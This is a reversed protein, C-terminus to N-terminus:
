TGMRSYWQCQMHLERGSKRPGIVTIQAVINCAHSECMSGAAVAKAKQNKPNMHTNEGVM